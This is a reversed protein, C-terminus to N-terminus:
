AGRFILGPGHYSTSAILSNCSAASHLRPRTTKPGRDAATHGLVGSKRDSPRPNSDQGGESDVAVRPLHNVCMHGTAYIQRLILPDPDTSTLGDFQKLRRSFNTKGLDKM